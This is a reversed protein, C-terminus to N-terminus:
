LCLLLLLVCLELIELLLCLEMIELLLMTMVMFTREERRVLRVNETKPQATKVAAIPAGTSMKITKMHHSTGSQELLNQQKRM